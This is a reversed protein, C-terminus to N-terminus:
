LCRCFRGVRCWAAGIYLKPRGITLTCWTGARRWHRSPGRYPEPQSSKLCLESQRAWIPATTGCCDSDFETGKPTTGKPPV